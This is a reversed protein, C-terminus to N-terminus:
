RQTLQRNNFARLSNNANTGPQSLKEGVIEDIIVDIEMGQSTQRQNVTAKSSSYNNVNVVVGANDNGGEMRVGLSGDSGRHLPMVAEPGAEGMVGFAGGSAFKFLTPDSFVGNTFAGGSAFPTLGSKGFAGGNAFGLIKGISGLFGGGSANNDNAPMLADFLLDAGSDLLKDALKDLLNSVANTFSEWASKGEMLNQKLDSVFSKGADKLFNYTDAARKVEAELVSMEQAMERIKQTQQPTLDINKQQAENLLETEYKLRSTEQASQGLAAREAKLENMRREHGKTLEEWPDKKGKKKDEDQGLGASIARIKDAAKSAANAIGEAAAGIYDTNMAEDFVDGLAVTAEGRLVRGMNKWQEIIVKYAGIFFGIIKNVATKAADVIDIGFVQAIEDRFIILAAVVAGIGLIVLSLPSLGILWAAAMQAGAALSAAGMAYLSRITTTIAGANFIILTATLGGIVLVLGNANDAVMDMASALGNLLGQGVSVWDTFQIAVAALAVLGISLLSVPNIISRFAQAIGKLPSEMSNLIASLQTGQQLAITLPNMGMSATVGIDQFQAAINATNFRNPMQDRALPADAPSGIRVGTAVPSARGQGTAASRFAAMNASAVGQTAKALKDAAIAQKLMARTNAEHANATRLAQKASDIDAKTANGSAKVTALYARAKASEATAVATAAEAASKSATTTGAAAAKLKNLSITAKDLDKTDAKFGINAIDM